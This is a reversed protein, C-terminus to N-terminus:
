AATGIASSLNEFGNSKLLEELDSLIERVVGPGRYVLATYIQVLSAGARIKEFADAGSFVGGVGIIPLQGQTMRYIKAIIQTSICRLPAGSLGGSLEPVEPPLGPRQLTTNTAIVGSALKLAVECLPELSKEELDPSIKILIPKKNKNEAQLAILIKELSRREQLDRLGTTNPSSVNVAFYNGYPELIKFTEAYRSPAEEPSTGANIGLNIGRPISSAQVKALRRAVREAGEGNFGMRNVLAEFEPIRFLRPKPNGSQPKLTVTGAEIFGFGLHPLFNLLRANKDFGAALGIPNEFNMGLVHSGLIASKRKGWVLSAALSFFPVHAVREATSSVWDHAKEPDLRSLGPFVFREYFNPM